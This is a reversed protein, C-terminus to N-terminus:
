PSLFNFRGGFFQHRAVIFDLKDVLIVLQKGVDAHLFVDCARKQVVVFTVSLLSYAVQQVPQPQLGVLLPQGLLETPTLLLFHRNGLCQGHLRLYQKQVLGEAMQIGNLLSLQDILELLKKLFHLRGNNKYGVVQVIGKPQRVRQHDQLFSFDALFAVRLVEALLGLGFVHCAKKRGDVLNRMAGTVVDTRCVYADPATAAQYSM